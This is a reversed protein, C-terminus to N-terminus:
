ARLRGSAVAKLNFIGHKSYPEKHYSDLIYNEAVTM